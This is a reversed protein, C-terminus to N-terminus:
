PTIVPLLDLPSQSACVTSTAVRAYIQTTRLSRHGLLLQIQEIRAGSELMHTAFCHRLTKPTVPKALGAAKETRKIAARVTDGSVPADGGFLWKKPRAAQWYARLEELLRQSLMVYRDKSGKGQEVRIVMRKSDIDTIKLHAVENTRLGAGYATMVIARDRLGPASEIFHAVETPDLILPLRKERKPVPIFELAWPRRLTNAYLFRLAASAVTFSSPSKGEVEMLHVLYDRVDEMGLAGPSEKHFSAFYGVWRIYALQTNVSLNRLKLDQLMRQRLPNELSWPNDNNRPPKPMMQDADWGWGLTEAYFLEFAALKDAIMQRACRELYDRVQEPSLQDPSEKYSAALAAVETVYKKQLDLPLNKGQLVAFM